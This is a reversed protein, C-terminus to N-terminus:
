VGCLQNGDPSAPACGCSVVSAFAVSHSRAGSFYTFCLMRFFSCYCCCRRTWCWSPTKAGLFVVFGCHWCGRTRGYMSAASGIHLDSGFVGFGCGKTAGNGKGEVYGLVRSEGSRGGTVERNRTHENAWFLAVCFWVRLVCRALHLSSPPVESRGTRGYSMVRVLDKQRAAQITGM